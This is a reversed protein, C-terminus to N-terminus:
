KNRKTIVKKTAATARKKTRTSAKKSVTKAKGVKTKKKTSAPKSKGTARGVTKRKVPKKKKAQKKEIEKQKKKQSESVEWTMNNKYFKEVTPDTKFYEETIPETLYLGDPSTVRSLAVYLQGSAFIQPSLVMKSFTKGQSKHITIAKAVKLPIQTVSGIEEKKLVATQRDVTYKYVSWKHKEVTITNGNELEVTVTSADAAKVTAFMGNTYRGISLQGDFASNYIGDADLITDNATFM